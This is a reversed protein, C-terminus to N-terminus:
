GAPGGLENQEVLRGRSCVACGLASREENAGCCHNSVRM